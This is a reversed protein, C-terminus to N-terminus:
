NLRQALPVIALNQDLDQVDTHWSGIAPQHTEVRKEMGIHVEPTLEGIETVTPEVVIPPVSSVQGFVPSLPIEGNVAEQDSM